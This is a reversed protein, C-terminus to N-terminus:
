TIRGISAARLSEVSRSCCRMRCTMRGERLRRRSWCLRGHLGIDFDLSAEDHGALRFFVQFHETDLEVEVDNLDITAPANLNGLIHLGAPGLKNYIFTQVLGQM